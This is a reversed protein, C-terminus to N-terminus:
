ANDLNELSSKSIDKNMVYMIWKGPFVVKRLDIQDVM